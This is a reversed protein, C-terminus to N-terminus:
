RRGDPRIDIAPSGLQWTVGLDASEIRMSIKRGRVRTNLQGTYQEIPLVASRTVRGANTGGESLPDNYGSGSNAMPFLSMTLAPLEATSGIFNVDPLIRWIFSFQHGDDIDFESSHIYSNMPLPDGDVDDDVGIEHNVITKAYTAAIPYSRLGSEAWATREMTGYYWVGEMYNYVVYRDAVSGGNSCYFWWIEHFRENTGAFVQPYNDRCLGDFVFRRVDCVLPQTRGSYMYFKERGMWYVAGNSYAVSNQSAISINEGVLTASWVAPAGVYQLSYLASDTWVLVEQRSQIAAVIRSGRSLRLSGAQNTPTPQWEAANEQDSWRILMPDFDTSFVENTGFCFIFRSTDSILLSNVLLPVENAGPRASLPVARASLTSSSDWYFVPSKNAAFVLDEGFNSQSWLRLGEAGELGVGWEGLGWANASWGTVAVSSEPGVNIQYEATVTGGGTTTASANDPATITYTFETLKNLQFEGNLTLGGVATAGSFTVFDGNIFGPSPDAITVVPSGAETTFPDTLVTTDRLPTIDNYEGGSEIYFKLNTGVGTLPVSGLTVWSWLSRCVGLFTFSSIPRWGGVQEPSGQRFRVRDCEYWGGETSYSTGERNVGPKLQLKKLPM